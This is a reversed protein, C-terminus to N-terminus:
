KGFVKVQYEGYIGLINHAQWDVHNVKTIGASKGAAEISCDGTAILGLISICKATGVKTAGGLDPTAQMPLNLDTFFAGQPFSTACGSVALVCLLALSISLTKTM